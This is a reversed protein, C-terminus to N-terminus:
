RNLISAARTLRGVRVAVHSGNARAGACFRTGAAQCAERARLGSNFLAPRPPYGRQFKLRVGGAIHLTLDHEQSINYEWFALPCLHCMATLQTASALRHCVSTVGAASPLYKGAFPRAPRAADHRNVSGFLTVYMSTTRAVLLPEHPRVDSPRSHPKISCPTAVPVSRTACM